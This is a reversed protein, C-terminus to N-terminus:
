LGLIFLLSQPMGNRSIHAGITYASRLSCRALFLFFTKNSSALLGVGAASVDCNESNCCLNQRSPFSFLRQHPASDPLLGSRLDIGAIGESKKQIKRKPLQLILLSVNRKQVKTPFQPFTEALSKPVKRSSFLSFSMIYKSTRKMKNCDM